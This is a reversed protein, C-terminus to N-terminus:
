MLIETKHSVLHTISHLPPISINEISHLGYNHLVQVRIVMTHAVTFVRTVIQSRTKENQTEHLLKTKNQSINQLYVFLTHMFKRSTELIPSIIRM